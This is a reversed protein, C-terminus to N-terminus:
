NNKPFNILWEIAKEENSFIKTPQSPKHIKQYFEAILKYALNNVVLAIAYMPSIPELSKANERAEKTVSVYDGATFMFPHKIGNVFEVCAYLHELQETVDFVINDKMHVHVVGDSRLKMTTVSTEAVKLIQVEDTKISM